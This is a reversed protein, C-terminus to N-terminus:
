RRVEVEEAVTVREGDVLFVAGAAVIKDGAALEQGEVPEIRRLTGIPNDVTVEVQRTTDGDAAPEVVFVHYTGSQAMIADLPVYFGPQTQKGVLDVSVLDGPRLEWRQTDYFVRDGSWAQEGETPLVIKGTIVDIAPDFDQGAALQVERLVALGLVSISNGIPVVRIKEVKLVRDSDQSLTGISRNVVKWLIDGEDDRDLYAENVFLSERKAGFGLILKGLTDTRAVVQGKLEEPVESRVSNNSMMLTITFTRTSPDAIPDIVYIFAMREATSGDAQPVFVKVQDRHNLVRATAASVEVEVKMPHMMQVTIVREGPDVYSGAIVHTEAVQGPVTWYLQCDALDREAMRLTEQLEEIKADNSAIEAQKAERTANLERIYALSQDQKTKAIDLDRQSAAGKRVLETNRAVETNAMALAAQASEVQAPLVSELEIQAADRQKQATTITAKASQVNLEYRTSDIRALVTGKTAAGGEADDTDGTIVTEPEVVFEVRGAVEFALDNTKWSVVNGPYRDLRSPDTELLEVVSVPRPAKVTGQDRKSNCGFSIACVSVSLLLLHCKKM